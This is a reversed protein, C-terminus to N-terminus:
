KYRVYRLRLDGAAVKSIKGSVRLPLGDDPNIYIVINHHLGLFSFNEPKEVEAALPEVQLKIKLAEHKGEHRVESPSEDAVFDVAINKKGDPM